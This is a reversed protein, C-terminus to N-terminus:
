SRRSRRSAARRAPSRADSDRRIRADELREGLDRAAGRMWMVDLEASSFWQDSKRETQGWAPAAVLVALAVLAVGIGVKRNSWAM